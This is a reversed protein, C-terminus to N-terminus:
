QRNAMLYLTRHTGHVPERRLIDFCTSFATEFGGQDYDGFIDERSSLLRKVQSDEKPV